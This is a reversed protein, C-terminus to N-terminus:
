PPAPAQSCATVEATNARSTTPLEYSTLVSSEPSVGVRVLATGITMGQKDRAQLTCVVEQQPDKRVSFQIRVSTDSTEYTRVAFQIGGDGFRGYLLIAMGLGLLAAVVVGVWQPRTVPSVRPTPANHM